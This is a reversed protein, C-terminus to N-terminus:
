PVLLLVCVFPLPLTHLLPRAGTLVIAAHLPLNRGFSLDGSVLVLSPSFAAWSTHTGCFAGRFGSAWTVNCAACSHLCLTVGGLFALPLTLCCPVAASFSGCCHRISLIACSPSGTSPLYYHCLPLAKAVFLSSTKCLLDWYVHSINDRFGFGNLWSRTSGCFIFWWCLLRYRGRRLHKRGASRWAPKFPLLRCVAPMITATVSLNDTPRHVAAYLFVFRQGM